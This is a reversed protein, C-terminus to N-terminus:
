FDMLAALDLAAVRAGVWQDFSKAWEAPEDDDAGLRRLNHVAGGSGVIVVGEDRLAALERGLTVLEGVRERGALPLQVVPLGAGPLIHLLPVWVGHDLGREGDIVAQTLEAVRKALDPAGPCPYEIDELERGFGSFDHITSPRDSGTVRLPSARWHAS